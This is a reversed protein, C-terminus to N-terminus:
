FFSLPTVAVQPIYFFAVHAHLPPVGKKLSVFPLSLAALSTCSQLQVLSLGRVSVSLSGIELQPAKKPSPGAGKEPEQPPPSGARTRHYTLPETRLQLLPERGPHSCSLVSGAQTQWGWTCHSPWLSLRCSSLAATERSYSHSFVFGAQMWWGLPERGPCLSETQLLLLNERFHPQVSLGATVVYPLVSLRKGLALTCWAPSQIRPLCLTLPTPPTLLVARDAGAACHPLSLRLGGAGAGHLLSQSIVMGEGVM